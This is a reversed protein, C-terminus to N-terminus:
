NIPKTYFPNCQCKNKIVKGVPLWIGFPYKKTSTIVDFQYDWGKGVYHWASDGIKSPTGDPEYGVITGKPLLKQGVTFLPMLMILFLINKM